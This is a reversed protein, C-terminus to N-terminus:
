TAPQASEGRRCNLYSLGVIILIITAGMGTGFSAFYSSVSSSLGQLGLDLRGIDSSSGNQWTIYQLELLDPHHLHLDSMNKLMRGIDAIDGAPLLTLPDWDWGFHLVESALRVSYDSTALHDLFFGQCGPPIKIQQTGKQLHIESHSGNRCRMTATSTDPSYVLYQGKRVQYVQEKMPILQFKCLGRVLEFRQMYLAGLCTDNFRKSMVGFSDCMFVQNMQHCSLLDTSTLQVNYRTESSSIALIDEEADIMLHHTEFM